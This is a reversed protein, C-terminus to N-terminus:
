ALLRKEEMIEMAVRVLADIMSNVQRLRELDCWHVPSSRKKNYDIEFYYNDGDWMMVDVKKSCVPCTEIGCYTQDIASHDGLSAKEDRLFQVVDYANRVKEEKFIVQLLVCDIKPDTLFKM